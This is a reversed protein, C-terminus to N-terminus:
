FCGFGHQTGAKQVGGSGAKQVCTEQAQSISQVGESGPTPLCSSCRAAETAGLNVCSYLSDLLLTCHVPQGVVFLSASCFSLQWWLRYNPKILIRHTCNTRSTTPMYWKERNDPHQSLDDCFGLYWYLSWRTPCSVLIGRGEVAAVIKSSDIELLPEQYQLISPTLNNKGIVRSLEVVLM